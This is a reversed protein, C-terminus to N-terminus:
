HRKFKKPYDKAGNEIELIFEKSRLNKERLYEDVINSVEINNIRLHREINLIAERQLRESYSKLGTIKRGKNSKTIFNRVYKDHFTYFDQDKKHTGFCIWGLSPETLCDKFGFGSLKQM